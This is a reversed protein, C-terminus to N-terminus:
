MVRWTTFLLLLLHLHNTLSLFPNCTHYTTVWRYTSYEGSRTHDSREGCYPEDRERTALPWDCWCCELVSCWDGHVGEGGDDEEGGGAGEGSRGPELGILHHPYHDRLWASSKDDKKFLSSPLQFNQYSFPKDPVVDIQKNNVLRKDGAVRLTVNSPRYQYSYRQLVNGRRIFWDFKFGFRPSPFIRHSLVLM